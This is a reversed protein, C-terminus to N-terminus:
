SDVAHTTCSRFWRLAYPAYIMPCVDYPCYASVLDTAHLVSLSIFMILLLQCTADCPAQEFIFYNLKGPQMQMEHVCCCRLLFLALPM